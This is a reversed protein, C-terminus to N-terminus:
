EYEYFRYYTQAHNEFYETVMTPYGDDDYQYIYNCVDNEREEVMKSVNNESFGLLGGEKLFGLGFHGYFSNKKTDYEFRYNDVRGNTNVTLRSLNNGTWTLQYVTIEGSRSVDQNTVNKEMRNVINPSFIWVLPNIQKNQHMFKEPGIYTNDIKILKGDQYSLIYTDTFAGWNGSGCRSVAKIRNEEYEYTAYFSHYSSNGVAEVRSVRNEEYSFVESWSIAGDFYYDISELRNGNWHWVQDLVKVPYTYDDSVYVKECKKIPKDEEQPNDKTCSISSVLILMGLVITFSKFKNM